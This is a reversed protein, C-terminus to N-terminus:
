GADSRLALGHDGGTGKLSGGGAGVEVIAVVPLQMPQGTAYGGIYYGEEIAPVGDVILTAKATTGGMDFGIAQEIGLLRAVHGAGIMGAVPGSEMMSVPELAAHALSM